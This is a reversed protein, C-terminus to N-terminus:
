KNMLSLCLSLCLCLCLSFCAGQPPGLTPSSGLVGPDCEPGFDSAWGSLWGPMGATFYKQDTVLLANHSVGQTWVRSRDNVLQTVKIADNLRETSWLVPKFFLPTPIQLDSLVTTSSIVLTWSFGAPGTLPILSPTLGRSLRLISVALNFLIVSAHLHSETHNYNQSDTKMRLDEWKFM